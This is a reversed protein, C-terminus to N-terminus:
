GENNEGRGHWFKQPTQQKPSPQHIREFDADAIHANLVAHSRRRAEDSADTPLDAFNEPLELGLAVICDEAVDATTWGHGLLDSLTSLLSYTWHPAAPTVDKIPKPHSDSSHTIWYNRAAVVMTEDLGRRREDRQRLKGFGFKAQRNWEEVEAWEQIHTPTAAFDRLLFELELLLRAEELPHPDASSLARDIGEVIWREADILLHKIEPHLGGISALGRFRVIVEDFASTLPDFQALAAVQKARMEGRRLLGASVAGQPLVILGEPPEAKTRRSTKRRAM